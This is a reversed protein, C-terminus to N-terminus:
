TSVYRARQLFLVLAIIKAGDTLSGAGLTILCDTQLSSAEEVIQLVDSWLTHPKMGIRTGVAKAGLTSQLKALANTNRALSASAIVFIRSAHFTSEVHKKCAEPFALGYSVKPTGTHEFPIFLIEDNALPSMKLTLFPM